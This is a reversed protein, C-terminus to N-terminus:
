RVLRDHNEMPEHDIDTHAMINQCPSHGELAEDRFNRFRGALRKARRAQMGRTTSGAHALVVIALALVEDLAAAIQHARAERRESALRLRLQLGPDDDPNERARPMM